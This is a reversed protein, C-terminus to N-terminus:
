EIRTFILHPSVPGDAFFILVVHKLICILQQVDSLLVLAHLKTLHFSCYDDRAAFLEDVLDVRM